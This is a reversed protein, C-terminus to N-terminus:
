TSQMLDAVDYPRERGNGLMALRQGNLRNQIDTLEDLVEPPLDGDRGFGIATAAKIHGIMQVLEEYEM